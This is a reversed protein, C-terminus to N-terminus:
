VLKFNPKDEDSKRNNVLASFTQEDVPRGYLYGQIIDCGQDKLWEAQSQEEVGEAIVKLNSREALALVTSVLSCSDESEPLDQVFMRDVKLTTFPFRQLYSLSSYGTGFDDISISVGIDALEDLIKEAELPDKILLGETIEIELAEPPLKNKLLASQVTSVIDAGILQVPSINVAVHFNPISKRWESALECAQYLAWEGFDIILGTSEAVPIFEAPGIPGLEADTWRMLAEAGIIRESKADVLPQYNLFIDGRGQAGALRTQIALRRAADDHMSKSFMRFTNHGADKAAYMATDAMQLLGTATDDKHETFAVGLSISSYLRHGAVELPREFAQLISQSVEAAVDRNGRCPVVLVFEDGGFRSALSGAPAKQYIRGAVEKLAEDGVVHGLTDNVIRFDDLDGLIVAYPGDPGHDGQLVDRLHELLLVRNALGTLPDYNALRKLREEYSRRLTIDRIFVSFRTNGKTHVPTSTIEAPFGDGTGKVAYTEFREREQLRHTGDASRLAITIPEMLFETVERGILDVAPVNFVREAAKNAHRILGTETCMLVVDDSAEVVATSRHESESLAEELQRKYVGDSQSRSARQYSLRWSFYGLGLVIALVVLAGPIHDLLRHQYWFFQPARSILVWYPDSNQSVVVNLPPTIRATTFIGDGTSTQTIGDSVNRWVEPYRSQVRDSRNFMFGWEVDRSPGILWHGSANTLWGDSEQGTFVRRVQGLVNEALFNFVLVGGRQGDVDVPATLRIMPKYPIEIRKNELNLDLRSIYIQGQALDMADRFYYRHRKNQLDESGVIVPAQDVLDIRIREQGTADIFRVQDFVNKSRSFAAFGNEVRQRNAPSPSLIFDRLGAGSSLFRLDGIATNLANHISIQTIHIKAAERDVIEDHEHEIHLAFMAIGVAIVAVFVPLFLPLFYSRVLRVSPAPAQDSLVHDNRPTSM